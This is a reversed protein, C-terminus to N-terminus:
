GKKNDREASGLARDPTHNGISKGVQRYFTYGNRYQGALYRGNGIAFANKNTFCAIM